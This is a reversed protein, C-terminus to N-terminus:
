IKVELLSPIQAAPVPPSFLFGQFEDCQFDKLCELQLRTEVGEALVKLKLTKAMKIIASVMEANEPRTEIDQIFSRDIKLTDFPFKRLSALSSYGIGFDDIALMVGQDKLAKMQALTKGTDKILLSETLELELCAPPIGSKAIVESVEQPLNGSELQRGSINVAVRLDLGDKHWEKLQRCSEKLVWKGITQILGNEEAMPIFQLPSLTGFHDNKWRILAEVAKVRRAALDVQPQYLLSFEQNKLAQYLDNELTLRDAVTKQMEPLYFCWGKGSERRAYYRATEARTLVTEMRETKQPDYFACGISSRIRFVHENFSVPRGLSQSVARMLTELNEKDKIDRALIDFSDHKGQYILMGGGLCTTLRQVATCLSMEGCASGFAETISNLNDIGVSLVALFPSTFFGEEMGHFQKLLRVRSPLGTLADHSIQRNLQDKARQIKVQGQQDRFQKKDLRTKISDLLDNLSIPKTLYDDAGLAMGKRVDTQLDRGTVFIFPILATRPNQSLRQFVEYGNVQPMEVDCLIVDPLFIGAISVGIDGNEAAQCDYGEAALAAMMWDRVSPEDDIVLIKKKKSFVM